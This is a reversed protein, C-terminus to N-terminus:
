ILNIQSQFWGVKDNPIFVGQTFGEYKPTKIWNSVQVGKIGESKTSVQAIVLDTTPTLAIRTLETFEAKEKAM